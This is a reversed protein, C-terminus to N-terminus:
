PPHRTKAEGLPRPCRAHTVSISRLSEAGHRLRPPDVPRCRLEHPLPRHDLGKRRARGWGAIARRQGRPPPAPRASRARSGWPRALRASPRAPHHDLRRRGVAPARADLGGCSLTGTIRLPLCMSATAGAQQKHHGHRDPECRGRRRPFTSGRRADHHEDGPEVTSRWEASRRARARALLARGPPDGTTNRRRQFARPERDVRGGHAFARWRRGCRARLRHRVGRCPEVRLSIYVRVPARQVAEEGEQM